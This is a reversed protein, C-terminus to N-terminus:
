HDRRRGCMEFKNNEQTEVTKGKVYNTRIIFDPIFHLAHNLMRPFHIFIVVVQGSCYSFEIMM